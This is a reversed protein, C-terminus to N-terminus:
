DWKGRSRGEVVLIQVPQIFTGALRGRGEVVQQNPQVRLVVPGLQQGEQQGRLGVVEGLCQVDAPRVLEGRLCYVQQTVLWARQLLAPYVTFSM